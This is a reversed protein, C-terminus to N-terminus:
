KPDKEAEKGTVQIPNDELIIEQAKAKALIDQKYAKISDKSLKLGVLYVIKIQRADAGKVSLKVSDWQFPNGDKEIRPPALAATRNDPKFTDAGQEKSCSLAMVALLVPLALWKRWGSPRKSTSIMLLRRKIPSHFFRHTPDLYRGDDYAQLLMRAFTETDGTAISADDAIFEHVMTLERLILWYFPNMWFVAALSQAFVNDYTHRGRIHALEHDFIKRNVPDHIDAGRQWFLNNLFSFPARRDQVEILYCEEMPVPRHQRRLRYLRAIRFALVVLLGVSICGGVLLLITTVPMGTTKAPQAAAGSVRALGAAKHFNLWPLRVLPLLVGAALTMLLFVRNYSHMKRNRLVGYYFGLLLGSVLVSRILYYVLTEM